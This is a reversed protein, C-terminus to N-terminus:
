AEAEKNKGLLFPLGSDDYYRRGEKHEEEMCSQGYPNWPHGSKCIFKDSNWERCGHCSGSVKAGQLRAELEACQAALTTNKAMEDARAESAANCQNCWLGAKEKWEDREDLAEQYGGFIRFVQVDLDHSVDAAAHGRMRDTCFNEFHAKVNEYFQRYNISKAATDNM